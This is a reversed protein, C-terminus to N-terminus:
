FKNKQKDDEFPSFFSCNKRRLIKCPSNKKFREFLIYKEPMLFGGYSRACTIINYCIIIIVTSTKAAQYNQM